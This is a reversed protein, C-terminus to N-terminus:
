AISWWPLGEVIVNMLFQGKTCAKRIDSIVFCSTCMFGKDQMTFHSQQQLCFCRHLQMSFQALQKVHTSPRVTMDLEKHGLPSYGALSEQGQCEGPLFVPTPQWTRRSPFRGVWPDFGTERMPPLNKTKHAALSAKRVGNKVQFASM